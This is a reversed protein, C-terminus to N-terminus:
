YELKSGAGKTYVYNGHGEARPEQRPGRYRVYKSLVIYINIYVSIGVRLAPPINKM